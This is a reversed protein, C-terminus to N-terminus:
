ANLEVLLDPFVEFQTSGDISEVCDPRDTDVLVTERGSADQRRGIIECAIEGTRPYSSQADLYEASVTATKEVFIWRRGSADSFECEVIGPQPDDSIYRTISVTIGIM